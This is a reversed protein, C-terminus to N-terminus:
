AGAGPRRAQLNGKSLARLKTTGIAGIGVDELVAVSVRRSPPAPFAFLRAFYGLLKEATLYDYYYPNEALFGIRRQRRPRRGSASFPRV